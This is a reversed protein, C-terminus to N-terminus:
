SIWLGTRLSDCSTLPSLSETIIPSASSYVSRFLTFSQMMLPFLFFQQQFKPLDLSSSFERIYIRRYFYISVCIRLQFNQRQSRSVIIICQRCRQSFFVNRMEKRELWEWKDTSVLSFMFSSFVFQCRDSSFCFSFFMSRQRLRSSDRRPSVQAEDRGM